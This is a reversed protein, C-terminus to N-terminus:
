SAEARRAAGARRVRGTRARAVRCSKSPIRMFGARRAKTNVSALESAACLRTITTSLKGPGPTSKVSRRRAISDAGSPATSSKRCPDYTIPFRAVGSNTSAPLLRCTTPSEFATTLTAPLTVIRFRPAACLKEHSLISWCSEFAARLAFVYRLQAVQGHYSATTAVESAFPLASRMTFVVPASLLLMPTSSLRELKRPLESGSETPLAPTVIVSAETWAYSEAKKPPNEELPGCLPFWSASMVSISEYANTEPACGSPLTETEALPEAAISKIAV